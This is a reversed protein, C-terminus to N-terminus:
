PSLEAWFSEVAVCANELSLEVTVSFASDDTEVLDSFEEQGGLGCFDGDADLDQWAYLALGEANDLLPVDLTWTFDGSEPLVISDFAKLPVRLDGEGYWSHHASLYVPAEITDALISGSIEIRQFFVEDNICCMFLFMIM